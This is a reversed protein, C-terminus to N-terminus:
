ILRQGALVDEQWPKGKAPLSPPLRPRQTHLSTHLHSTIPFSTIGKIVSGGGHPEMTYLFPPCSLRLPLSPTRPFEILPLLPWHSNLTLDGAQVITDGIMLLARPLAKSGEDEEEEEEEEELLKRWM